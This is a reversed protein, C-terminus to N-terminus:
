HVSGTPVVRIGEKEPIITVEENPRFKYREALSKPIRLGLSQGWRSMKAHYLKLARYKVAVDRLQHMNVIEEGCKGCKYYKYKIGEPTVAAKEKMSGGCDGCKKMRRGGM